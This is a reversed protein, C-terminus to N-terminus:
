KVFAPLEVQELCETRVGDVSGREIIFKRM